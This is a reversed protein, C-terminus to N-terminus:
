DAQPPIAVARKAPRSAKAYRGGFRMEVRKGVKGSHSLVANGVVGLGARGSSPLGSLRANKARLTSSTAGSRIPAVSSTSPTPPMM